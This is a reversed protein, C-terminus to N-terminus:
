KASKFQERLSAIDPKITNKVFNWFDTNATNLAERQTKMEALSTKYAGDSDGCALEKTVSVKTKLTSYATQWINLKETLVLLDAKLKDSNLSKGEVKTIIENLHDAVAQHRKGISENSSLKTNLENVKATIRACRVEQTEKTKTGLGAAYTSTASLGLLLGGTVIVSAIIPKKNM